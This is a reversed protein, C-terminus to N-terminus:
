LQAARELEHQQLQGAEEYQLAAREFEHQQATALGNSGLLVVCVVGVVKGVQGLGYRKM